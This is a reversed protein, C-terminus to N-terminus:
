FRDICGKITDAFNKVEGSFQQITMNYTAM